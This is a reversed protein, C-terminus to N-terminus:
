KIIGSNFLLSSEIGTTPNLNKLTPGKSLRKLHSGMVEQSDAINNIDHQIERIGENIIGLDSLINVYKEQTLVTLAKMEEHSLQSLNSILKKIQETGVAAVAANTTSMEVQRLLEDFQEDPTSALKEQEDKPISALEAIFTAPIKVWASTEAGALLAKLGANLVDKRKVM